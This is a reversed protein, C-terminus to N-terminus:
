FICKVGLNFSRAVPYGGLDVGRLSPDQGYGNVDPDFGTYKTITLLNDASVFFRLSNVYKSDHVPLEYGLNVNKLRIYSGNEIFRRSFKFSRDTTAIAKPNVAHAANQPTWRGDYLAQTINGYDPFGLNSMYYTNLNVIDNGYSGMIFISLDFNNYSFNNTFGYTFKPNVNGIVTRDADTIGPVKDLDKYRIEGVMKKIVNEPSGAYQPDAQVEAESNYFGNEVYGYLLGIPSGVQQIFPADNLTINAGFQRQKGGLSLIKNRNLAFTATARWRFANNLINANASIEVGRNEVSGLNQLQSAYGTSGPLIVNQLLDSTRKRYLDITFSFINRISLDVGLNFQATTEWKLGNNGPQAVAYGNYLDSNFIFPVPTYKSLSAYPPIAQNGTQGYSFRLKLDSISHSHSLFDEKNVKWALAFSPFGAWKNDAAFKSSGDARYSVTALYKDDYNYNLRGLFSNLTYQTRGNVPAAYVSGASLNYSTLLDNEFNSAGMAKYDYLTNEYTSAGMFSFDHKGIKRDYSLITESVVSYSSNDSVEAEGHANSGEFTTVPYYQNRQNTLFSLGVNQRIKLGRALTIELYNSSFLSNSGINNQVDKTYTYPDTLRRIKLDNLGYVPAYTLASRIVGAQGFLDTSGTKLQNNFSRTMSTNTGITLWSKVHRTLNMRVIGRKYGSNVMTGEQNLYDFSLMHTGNENGGSFSLNLDTSIAKRFVVDQWNTSKNRFESPAPKYIGTVPDVTGTYPLQGTAQYNTGAYIDANIFAENEYNAYTEANLVHIQHTVQSLTNVANVEIKDKGRKGKKTTILVVGNAGRSGYIATASADKLVEVSEIDSPNLFSLANITQVENPELSNPTASSNDANFPIGDVVYLPETGGLFSNAGRIQISIGAGPAGDNQLVQVGAVRGQLGQQLNVPNTKMLEDGKVSALAGTVDSKRVSGYGVVVVDSLKKASSAMALSIFTKAGVPVELNEYGVYSFVLIGSNGAVTLQFNGNADTTTAAKTAKAMVTVGNLPLGTGADIIKGKIVRGQAFVPGTCLLLSVIFLCHCLLRKSKLM